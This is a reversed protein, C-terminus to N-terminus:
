EEDEDRIPIQCKAIIPTLVELEDDTLKTLDHAYEQHSGDFIGCERAIELVVKAARADKQLARDAQTVVIAGLLSLKQAGSGRRLVVTASLIERLEGKLNRKTM